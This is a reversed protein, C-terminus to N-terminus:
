LDAPYAPYQINSQTNRSSVLTDSALQVTLIPISLPHLILLYHLPIGTSDDTTNPQM